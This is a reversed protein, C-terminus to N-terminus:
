FLELSSIDGLIIPIPLPTELHPPVELIPSDLAFSSILHWPGTTRLGILTLGPNFKLGM